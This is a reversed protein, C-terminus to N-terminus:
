GEPSTSLSFAGRSVWEGTNWDLLEHPGFRAKYEMSLCGPVWYGLYYWRGGNELVFASERFVSLSGLSLKSWGPRFSFYASSMGEDGADLFGLAILEGDLRYETQYAPVANEFFTREFEDRDAEKGFQGRSHESYVRWVEDTPRPKVVEMRVNRAGAIIRRQSRSPTLARVDVRLPFCQRCGPCNPRFFFRGFRRWGAALLQAFEHPSLGEAFFYEQIFFRDPLYPCDVPPATRLNSLFRM